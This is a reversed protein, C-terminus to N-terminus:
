YQDPWLFAGMAYGRKEELSGKFSIGYERLLMDVKWEEMKEYDAKTYRPYHLPMQFGTCPNMELRSSKIMVGDAHENPCGVVKNRSQMNNDENPYGFVHCASHVLWRLAAM